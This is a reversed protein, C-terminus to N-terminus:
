LLTLNDPTFIGRVVARLAFAGPESHERGEDLVTGRVPSQWILLAASRGRERHPETDKSWRDM